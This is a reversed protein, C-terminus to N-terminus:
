EPISSNESPPEPNHRHHHFLSPNRKNQEGASICTPLHHCHLRLPSFPPRRTLTIAPFYTLFTLARCSLVAFDHGDDPPLRGTLSLPSLPLPAPSSPVCHWPTLTPQCRTPPPLPPLLHPTSPTATSSPSPSSRCHSHPFSELLPRLQLFDGSERTVFGTM